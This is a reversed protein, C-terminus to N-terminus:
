KRAARVPTVPKQLDATLTALALMQYPEADPRSFV